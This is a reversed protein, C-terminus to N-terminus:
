LFIWSGVCYFKIQECLVFSFSLLDDVKDVTFNCCIVEAKYASHVSHRWPDFHPCFLSRWFDTVTVTYPM